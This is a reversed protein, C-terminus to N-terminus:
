GAAHRPGHHHSGFLDDYKGSRAIKGSRLEYIQSCAHLTSLRHAIIIITRSGALKNIDDMVAKETLSDLASTAEDLLLLRPNRYLARAIGIRQRQGGSLRIGREGVETDYGKSLEQTIFDDIKAIRAAWRVSDHDILKLPVGFAINRAVSEDALFMHQPVYGIHDMWSRINDRDLVQGDVTIQGQQPSLLGLIIDALTSKGSGTHGMFGITENAPITLSVGRLSPVKASPYSYRIDTLVLSENFTVTRPRGLTATRPFAASEGEGALEEYVSNIVPAAHRITTLATFVGQLKPMLRFSAFAFVGLTPLASSMGGKRSIILLIAIAIVGSFAILHLAHKPLQKILAIRVAVQEIEAAPVSFLSLMTRENGLLKIEKIGSFAESVHKFRQKNASLHQRGLRLVEGRSLAYVLAYGGGFIAISILTIKLNIALLLLLIAITSIVNAILGLLPTLVDSVVRRAEVLINKSLDSSNRNLFFVYPQRLYHAVLRLTLAYMRRQLYSVQVWTYIAAVCQTTFTIAIAVVALFIMFSASNAFGLQAYLWSLAAVRQIKEPNAMVMLLPSVSGIAAMELIAMLVTLGILLLFNFRERGSLLAYTRKLIM